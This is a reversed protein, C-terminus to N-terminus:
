AVVRRLFAMREEGGVREAGPFGGGVGGGGLGGGGAGGGKNGGAGGGGDFFLAGQLWGMAGPHSGVLKKLPECLKDLESRAAHGGINRVLSAAILPGLHAM